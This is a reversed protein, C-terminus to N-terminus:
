RTDPCANGLSWPSAVRHTISSLLCVPSVLYHVTIDIEKNYFFDTVVIYISVCRFPHFGLHGLADQKM